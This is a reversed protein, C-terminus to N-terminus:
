GFYGLANGFSIGRVLEALKSEDGPYEGKEVWTGFLNCLIRRFYEHRPYSLFSRSDTLMGVFASLLGINGLVRLQEEMGDRHDCFWWASGLQMRGYVGGVPGGHNDQFCGMLTGLPYYDKPNLTYFIMKPMAGGEEITGLLAALNGSLRYDSVADYGTDPGLSRFSAPSNNRIAAIHVQMVMGRRAYSGALAALIRTKYADAGQPSPAKGALAESFTRDV